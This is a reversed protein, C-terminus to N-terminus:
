RTFRVQEASDLDDKTEPPGMAAYLTGATNLSAPRCASVSGAIRNIISPLLAIVLSDATQYNCRLPPGDTGPPLM